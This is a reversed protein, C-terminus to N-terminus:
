GRRWEHRWRGVILWPLYVLPVVLTFAGFVCAEFIAYHYWRRRLPPYAYYVLFPVSLVFVLIVFVWIGVTSRVIMDGIFAWAAGFAILVITFTASLAVDVALTRRPLEHASIPM